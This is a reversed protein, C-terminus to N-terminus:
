DMWYEFSQCYHNGGTMPYYLREYESELPYNTRLEPALENLLRIARTTSPHFSQWSPPDEKYERAAIALRCALEAGLVEHNRKNLDPNNYAQVLIPVADSSLDTLYSGDLARRASHPALTRQINQNAIFGDVNMVGLAIAFTFSFLLLALGFRGRNGTLELAITAILLAALCFIFVHTYTRLRTFGYAGEYLLMRQLSSALMVLVLAMLLTSLTSFGRKQAQNNTRTVAALCLYILLSLVAVTVLEGFGKRAYEAYTFNLENINNTGGFLYRFQITVFFAFLLNISGLVIASETWGLFPKVWTRKHDPRDATKKPLVAQLFIGTFTYALVIIYFIRFLYEPLRKLDFLKFFDELKKAFAMDASSLLAGLILVIPAAILLGRLVPLLHRMVRSLASKKEPDSEEGTSQTLVKGPREFGGFITVIIPIFYDVVRYYFWHGSTFTAALLILGGLALSTNIFRTFSEMRLATVATMLIIGLGLLLSFSSHRTKEIRALLFLAALALIVWIAISIGPSKQWFLLDVGWGLIAGAALFASPSNAKPDSATQPKQAPPTETVPHTM